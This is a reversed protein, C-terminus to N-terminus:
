RMTDRWSCSRSNLAGDPRLIRMPLLGAAAAPWRRLDCRSPDAWKALAARLSTDYRSWPTLGAFAEATMDHTGFADTLLLLSRVTDFCPRLAMLEAPLDLLEISRRNCVAVAGGADVMVLGQDMSALTTELEHSTTATRAESEKLADAMETLDANRDGLAAQEKELRLLQRGLARLLLLVCVAACVTGFAILKAEHWWHALAAAKSLGVNVVLPYDRLPRVAVLRKTGDLSSVPEYHGGGQAVLAYWAPNAALKMGIRNSFNPHRVVLTGDRRLLLFSESRPLKISRYPESLATLPVSGLVMGLFAGGPGNVRRVLYLTWVGTARSVVPESVFLDPDDQTAFHRTYERDSMDGAPAPWGTSYNVRVGDAGVLAFNNVQPLRDARSRLFKHLEETRLVVQFAEPTAVGLVAIREQIERLVIDVAQVSRSTQEALVIALNDTSALAEALTAERLDWVTVGIALVVVALLWAGFCTLGVRRRLCGAFRRM